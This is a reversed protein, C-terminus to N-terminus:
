AGGTGRHPDAPEAPLRRLALDLRGHARHGRPAGRASGGGRDARGPRRRGRGGAREAAGCRPNRPRNGRLRLAAIGARAFTSEHCPLTACSANHEGFSNAPSVEPIPPTFTPVRTAVRSVRALCVSSLAVHSECGVELGVVGFIYATKGQIGTSM